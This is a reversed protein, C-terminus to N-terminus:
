RNMTLYEPTIELGAAVALRNTGAYFSATAAVYWIAEDSFGEDRLRDREPDGISEPDNLVLLTFDLMARERSGLKALRYNRGIYEVFVPDDCLGRLRAGHHACCYACGNTQACVLAILEHDLPSLGSDARMLEMYPTMFARLRKNDSAFVRVFNPMFGYKKRIGAVMLKMEDDLNNRDDLDLGCIERLSGAAPVNNFVTAM